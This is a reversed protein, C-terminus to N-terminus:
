RCELGPQGTFSSYIPSGLHKEGDLLLRVKENGKKIQKKRGVNQIRQYFGDGDLDSQKVFLCKKGSCESCKSKICSQGNKLVEAKEQVSQTRSRCKVCYSHM